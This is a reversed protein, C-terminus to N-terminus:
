HPQEPQEPQESQEPQQLHELQELQEPMKRSDAVVHMGHMAHMQHMVHMVHMGHLSFWSVGESSSDEDNDVRWWKLQHLCEEGKYGVTYGQDNGVDITYKYQAAKPDGRRRQRYMKSEVRGEVWGDDTEIHM